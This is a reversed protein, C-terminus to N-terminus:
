KPEKGHQILPWKNGYVFDPSQEFDHCQICLLSPAIGGILGLKKVGNTAMHDSGAGHCRECGVGALQPTEEYSLFGTQERWGVVHCGVCDPYATVPWGYRKPDKEADELTKWAGFHKSKEWVEYAGKHCTKCAESGVYAAGNATPLKRAMAALVGAEKVEHRHAVIVDRVQPDGGGGPVTKSGPLPVVECIARAHGQERFLSVALLARGRIGTFVLPVGGVLTAASTPEIYSPDVGVVLDPAPDLQPILARVAADGGHVFAIRRTTLPAGALAATWALAPALLSMKPELAAAAAPLELLFSAVRVTVDRVKKEVFAKGPWDPVACSLNTAVVPTGALFAMWEARPLSLDNPGVGLADYRHEMGFLVTNATFLKLLDLEDGHEVVDGGELLLDYNRLAGVHQMRRALGGSQGSACGCPELRGLMAGSLLLRVADAPPRVQAPPKGGPGPDQAAKGDGCQALTAVLTAIGFLFWLKTAPRM